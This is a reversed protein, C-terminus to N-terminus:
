ASRVLDRARAIRPPMPPDPLLTTAGSTLRLALGAAADTTPLELLGYLRRAWRPLTGFALGAITSLAIAASAPAHPQPTLLGGVGLRAEDSLRLSPRARDFYAALARRSSPVITPDLGVVEAARVSEAVHADADAADLVGARRAVDVYSDIECAHM